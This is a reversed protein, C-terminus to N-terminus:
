RIIVLKGFGNNFYGATGNEARLAPTSGDPYKVTAKYLYTGNALRDGYDDTGDWEFGNLNQGIHVLGLDQLDLRRVLRGTITYIDIRFVSPMDKGTLTFVFRTRTSFPNPYNFIPTLTNENIVRFRIEYPQEGAANGVRDYAQARFTYEGDPLPGPQFKLRARNQPLVGPSFNVQPNNELVVVSDAGAPTKFSVRFFGLSDVPYVPNNDKNTIIIEPRPSVIEGDMLRRGDFTVELLPNQNDGDVQFPYYFFNNFFYLENRERDPNVEVVLTNSGSLGTTTFSFETRQASTAPIPAFRKLGLVLPNQGPRIVSYRISFSDMPADGYNSVELRVTAQRGEAVPAPEFVFYRAPDAILDPAPQFRVEWNGLFPPTKNVPDRLEAELRLQPYLVPSLGTLDAQWQASPIVQQLITDVGTRNVAHLTFHVTDGAGGNTWNLAARNWSQAMGLPRSSLTGRINDGKLSASLQWPSQLVEYATGPAAGKKGALIYPQGDPIQRIHASGLAEIAQYLNEGGTVSSWSAIGANFQTCLVVWDGAPVQQIAQQLGAIGSPMPYWSWSGYLADVTQIQLNGGTIHSFWIGNVVTPHNDNNSVKVGNFNFRANGGTNTIVNLLSAISDFAWTKANLDPSLGDLLNNRFQPVDSQAWGSIGSRYQFSAEAWAAQPEDPLRVRWYYVRGEELTFPLAWDMFCASGTLIGSTQYFPSSFNWVTDIAFEYRQVQSQKMIFSSASLRIQNVPVIAFDHPYLIAPANGPIVRNLGVVNNIYRQDDLLRASDAWISFRNLGASREDRFPLPFVLTDLYPVPRIRLTGRNWTEGLLPGSLIQQQVTLPVSDPIAKGLNRVQIKMTVSDSATFPDPSFSIGGETIEFDPKDPFTLILAPDGQLNTQHIHNLAPPCTNPINCGFQYLRNHAQLLANGLPAGISDRYLTEYFHKSLEGLYVIYGLGSSAVWAIAGKDKELVFREAFTKNVTSFNGGYCGNAIVLPYKGVNTYEAAERIDIDFINNTSHGFFSILGVGQNIRNQIEQASASPISGNSKQQTLVKGGWPITEWIPRFRGDLYGNILSQEAQDEGGGLHVAEKMWTGDWPSQEYQQLKSLYDQGEADSFINVRGVPLVPLLGTTGTDLPTVMLGDSAPFGFTPVLNETFPQRTNRRLTEHMGKGWFLVYKPKVAWRRRATHIFRRIALPTVSGYGFEDYLEDTYVIICNQPNRISSQRYAALQAASSSLSRLTIIIYPAGSEQALGRFSVTRILPKRARGSHSVYMERAVNGGPIIFELQGTSATGEIRYGLTFDYAIAEQGNQASSMGIRWYSNVVKSWNSVRASDQTGLAFTRDYYLRIWSLYNNDTPAYLAQTTLSAQTGALGSMSGSQTVTTLHIGQSYHSFTSITGLQFNLAHSFLSFGFVRIQLDWNGGSNQVAGPFFVTHTRPIGFQVPFLDHYGEGTVFESSEADKAGPGGGVWASLNLNQHTYTRFYPEPSYASYNNLFFPVMRKGQAPSWTLFYVATDSFISLYPNPQASRDYKGTGSNKYLQADDGGDNRTGFFEVFDSGDFIGDPNVEQLFIAQERGRYYIKIENVPINGPYGFPALDSATARYIGDEWVELRIYTQGPQIWSWGEEPQARLLSISWPFVVLVALIWARM